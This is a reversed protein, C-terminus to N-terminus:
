NEIWRVTWEYTGCKRFKDMLINHSVTEFAKIFDLYVVDVARGEVITLYSKGKAFGHQSDRIDKREEVQKSTIDLILQELVKGFNSTLSISRYKGPEEKKVKKFVPTISAKRWDELM